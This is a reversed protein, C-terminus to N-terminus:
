ATEQSPPKTPRQAGSQNADPEPEDLWPTMDPMAAGTRGAAVVDEYLQVIRAFTLKWSYRAQSEQHGRAGLLAARGPRTLELWGDAVTRPTITDLAIGCRCTQLLEGISMKASGLLAAGSAMAEVASLGFTEYPSLVAVADSSALVRALDRPKDIYGLYKVERYKAALAEVEPRGPGHGAIVLVPKHGQSRLLEYAGLLARLCKDEGLRNPFCLVMDDPGAGWSARLAADRNRPHFMQTDVGLPTLAVRQIGHSTLQDVMVHTAALTQAFRGYTRRAWWWALREGLRGLWGALRALQRGVDTVPYNAHWFGVVQCALGRAAFRVFDPALHWSGVEVVDPRIQRLIRRLRLPNLMLRYGSQGLALAPVHHIRAHGHVEIGAHDSPLLLHYEIDDRKALYRLKELHYRRVGGGTLSFLDNVDCVRLKAM